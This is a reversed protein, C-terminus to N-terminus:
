NQWPHHRHRRRRRHYSLYERACYNFLIRSEEPTEHGRGCRRDNPGSGWFDNNDEQRVDRRRIAADIGGDDVADRPSALAGNRLLWQVVEFHGKLFASRWPPIAPGPEKESILTKNLDEPDFKREKLLARATTDYIRGPHHAAVRRGTGDNAHPLTM